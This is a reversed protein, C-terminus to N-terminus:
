RVYKIKHDDAQSGRSLKSLKNVGLFLMKPTLRAWGPLREKCLLMFVLDIDSKLAKDEPSNETLVAQDIMWQRFALLADHAMSPVRIWNFDPFANAFNWVFDPDIKLVYKNVFVHREQYVGYFKFPFRFWDPFPLEWPEHKSDSRVLLAKYGERYHIGPTPPLHKSRYMLRLTSAM